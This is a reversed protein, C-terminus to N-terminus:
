WRPQRCSTTRLCCRRFAEYGFLNGGGGSIKRGAAAVYQEGAGRRRVDAHAVAVSYLDLDSADAGEDGHAVLCGCGFRLPMSVTLSVDHGFVVTSLLRFRGRGSRGGVPVGCTPATWVARKVQANRM